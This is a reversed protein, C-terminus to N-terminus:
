DVTGWQPPGEIAPRDQRLRAHLQASEDLRKTVDMQRKVNRDYLDEKEKLMRREVGARHEVESKRQEIMRAEAAAAAKVKRDELAQRNNAADREQEMILNHWAVKESRKMREASRVREVEFEHKQQELAQWHQQATTQAIKNADESERQRRIRDRHTTEEISRTNEHTERAHRISLEHEKQRDVLKAVPKPIGVAGVPQLVSESYFKPECGKDRLLDLLHKKCAARSPSPILEVYKLPSYYLGADDRFLHKEDNLEEWVETELLAESVELVSYANDLALIVSSRENRARFKANAGHDLSLRILQRLKSRQSGAAIHANLCLEGLANRGGHLRSPFNPDHGHNILLAAAELNLCRAAEHLSGDNKLAYPALASVTSLVSASCAYFLPSRNWTDRASADAGRELLAPVVEARGERAALAIPSMESTKATRMVSAGADILTLIIADSIRKQEQNLAWMLATVSEEGVSLTLIDQVPTDPNCGHDLLLKVLAESRPYKQMALVLIPIQQRGTELDDSTCGHNFCSRMTAIIGDESLDSNLLAPVIVAFNPSQRMFLEFVALDRKQAAFVIGAGNGANVNANHMLLLDILPQARRNEDQNFVVVQLASDIATQEVNHSLLNRSINLIEEDNRTANPVSCNAFLARFAKTINSQSPQHKGSFLLGVLQSNGAAVAISLAEGDNFSVSAGHALLLKAVTLDYGSVAQRVEVALAQDLAEQSVKMRLITELLSTKRSSEKLLLAMKLADGVLQPSATLLCTIIDMNDSSDNIAIQLTQLAPREDVGFRLLLEILSSTKSHRKGNSDFTRPLAASASTSNPKRDCLLQVISMDALAVALSIAIGNDYNVDAGHRVLEQILAEERASPMERIADVLAQDVEPGHAGHGLLLRSTEFRESTTHDKRLLPFVSSLAQPSPRANLLLRLSDTDKRSVAFHLASGSSPTISAGAKLLTDIVTTDGEKTAQVLWRDLPPGNAGASVLAQIIPLRTSQPIDAPLVALAASAQQPSIPTQLIIDTLVWNSRAIAARLCEAENAAPSVKHSLMMKASTTDNSRTTSILLDSLGNSNPPLGCCFLLQLFQLTNQRSPLRLTTDLLRQLNAQTLVHPGSCLAVAIKYHQKGIALNLASSSDFNPDAGYSILLSIVADSMHHVAAPLCSSIVEPHLSKPARLLLRIFNQDNSRVANSLANPFKNLDAGHRLLEQICAQDNVALAAKLGEDLTTQDAGASALLSVSDARRSTAAQQLVTSRRRLSVNAQNGLRKKKEPTEIINVKAGLSLFAQILGPRISGDSIAASVAQDLEEQSFQISEQPKDKDKSSRFINKLVGKSEANKSRRDLLIYRAHAYDEESATIVPQIPPPLCPQRSDVPVVGANQILDKLTAPKEM